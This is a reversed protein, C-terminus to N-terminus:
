LSGLCIWKTSAMGRVLTPLIERLLKCFSNATSNTHTIKLFLRDSRCWERSNRLFPQEDPIGMDLRACAAAVRDEHATREQRRNHCNELEDESRDRWCGQPDGQNEVDDTHHTDAHAKVPEKRVSCEDCGCGNANGQSDRAGNSRLSRDRMPDAIVPTVMHECILGVIHMRRVEVALCRQRFPLSEYMRLDGPDVGVPRCIRKHEGLVDQAIRRQLSDALGIRSDHNSAQYSRRDDDSQYISRPPPGEVTCEPTAANTKEGSDHERARHIGEAMHSAPSRMGRRILTAVDTPERQQRQPFSPVVIM